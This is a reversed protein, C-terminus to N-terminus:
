REYQQYKNMDCREMLAAIATVLLPAAREQRRLTRPLNHWFTTRFTKQFAKPINKPLSNPGNSSDKVLPADDCITEEIQVNIKQEMLM